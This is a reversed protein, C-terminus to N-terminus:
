MDLNVPVPTEAESKEEIEGDPIYEEFIRNTYAAIEDPLVWKKEEEKTVIRFRNTSTERTNKEEESNHSESGSTIDSSPTSSGKSKEMEERRNTIPPQSM